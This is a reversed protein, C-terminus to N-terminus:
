VSKKAAEIAQVYHWSCRDKRVWSLDEDFPTQFQYKGKFFLGAASEGVVGSNHLIKSHQWMEISDTPWCFKLEPTVKVEWGHRHLGYIMAWMEATWKQLNTNLPEIADWINQSMEYIDKFLAATPQGIVWQAGAGQINKIKEVPIGSVASMTDLVQNGNERTELYEYGLYGECDSGWAVKKDLPMKSFDVMERFIVDSDVLFFEDNQVGPNAELYRWVLYPKITPIYNKKARYDSYDHVEVDGRSNFHDLVAQDERLFVLVIKADPMLSRINHIAVDVEWQFRMNAPQTLLFTM